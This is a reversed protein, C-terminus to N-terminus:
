AQNGMQLESKGRTRLETADTDAAEKAIEEDTKGEARGGKIIGILGAVAEIAAPGVANSTQLVQLLLDIRSTGSANGPHPNTSM